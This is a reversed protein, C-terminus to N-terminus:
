CGGSCSSAIPVIALLSFGGGLDLIALQEDTPTKSIKLALDDCVRLLELRRWQAGHNRGTARQSGSRAPLKM